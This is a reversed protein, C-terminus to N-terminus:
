EKRSKPGNERPRNESSGSGSPGNETLVNYLSLLAVADTMTVM